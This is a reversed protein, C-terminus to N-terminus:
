QHQSLSTNNLLDSCVQYKSPPAKFLCSSFRLTESLPPFVAAARVSHPFLHTKLVLAHLDIRTIVWFLIIFRIILM